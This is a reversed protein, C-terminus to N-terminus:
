GQAAFSRLREAITDLYAGLRPHAEIWDPTFTTTKNVYIVTVQGDSVFYDIAGFDLQLRRRIEHVEEPAHDLFDLRAMSTESCLLYDFEARTTLEHDLMFEHRYKVIPLERSRPVFREIILGSDTWVAEPVEKISDFIQYKPCLRDILVADV